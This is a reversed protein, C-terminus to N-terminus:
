PAGQLLGTTWEGEAITECLHFQCSEYVALVAPFQTTLIGSLILFGGPAVTGAIANAHAILVPALINAAVLDYPHSEHLDAVDGVRPEIRLSLGNRAINESAGQVADPDYDLAAVPDLGLRVAAIALIGSGCGLDLFSGTKGDATWRDLLQLCCRTTEHRGTGFSMGPDIRIVMEDAQPTYSEWEPRIVIRPSVKEIKFHTKWANTWDTEAETSRHLRWTEPQALALRQLNLANLARDADDVEEFYAEHHDRDTDVPTWCAYGSTPLADFAAEIRERDQLPAEVTLIEITKKM